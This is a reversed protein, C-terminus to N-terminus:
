WSAQYYLTGPTVMARRCIDVTLKLDEFYWEDYDTSGFYFGNATPLLENAKELNATVENCLDFLPKLNDKTVVYPECDDIGGQINDVFWKHIANAKRWYGIEQQQNNTKAYLYMDLGM